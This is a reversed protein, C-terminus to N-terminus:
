GNHVSDMGKRTDIYWKFIREVIAGLPIGYKVSISKIKDLVDEDINVKLEKYM